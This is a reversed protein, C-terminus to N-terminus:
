GTLASDRHRALGALMATSLSVVGYVMVRHIGDLRLHIVELNGNTESRLSQMEQRVSGIEARLEARMERFGEDVRHNLDDLREDTWAERM